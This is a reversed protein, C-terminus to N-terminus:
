SENTQPPALDVTVVTGTGGSRVWIHADMSQALSLVLDGGLGFRMGGEDPDGRGEANWPWNSGEPLGRGDDEVTMRAGGSSLHHFRVHITGQEAGVFAHELANTVFETLLLGLRATLDVPLEMEDCDVNVRISGRGEIAALTSCIRSLYAGAAVTDDSSRALGSGSLEDYLLALSRVRHSLAEFSERSVEKSAQMRILSVLMALHNKVRHQVEALMTDELPRDQAAQFVRREDAGSASSDLERQVGVYSVIEDTENRVPAILLRNLFESGDAKYNLIDLTIDDGADIANRIAEVDGPDTGEGQLFRCNRGIAFERSYLTISTFAENVYTIPNDDQRPDTLVMALPVAEIAAGIVEDPEGQAVVEAVNSQATQRDSAKATM